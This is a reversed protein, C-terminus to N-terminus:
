EKNGRKIYFWRELKKLAYLYQDLPVTPEHYVIISHVCDHKEAITLEDGFYKKLATDDYGVGSLQYKREGLITVSELFGDIIGKETCSPRQQSKLRKRELDMKTRMLEERLRNLETDSRQLTAKLAKVDTASKIKITGILADSYSIVIVVFLLVLSLETLTISIIDEKM